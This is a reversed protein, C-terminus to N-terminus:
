KKNKGEKFVMEGDRGVIKRAPKDDKFEKIDVGSVYTKYHSHDRFISLIENINSDKMAVPNRKVHNVFGIVSEPKLLTTDSREGIWFGICIAVESLISSSGIWREATYLMFNLVNPFRHAVTAMYNENM